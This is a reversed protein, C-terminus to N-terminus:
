AHHSVGQDGAAVTGLAGEIDRGAMRLVGVAELLGFLECEELDWVQLAADWVM